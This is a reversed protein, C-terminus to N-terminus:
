VIGPAYELVKQREKKPYELVKELSLAPSAPAAVHQGTDALLLTIDEGKRSRSAEGRLVDPRELRESMVERRRLVGLPVAAMAMAGGCRDGAKGWVRGRRGALGSLGVARGGHKAGTVSLPLSPPFFDM